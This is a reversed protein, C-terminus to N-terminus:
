KQVADLIIHCKDPTINDAGQVTNSSWAVDVSSTEDHEYLPSFVNYERYLYLHLPAYNAKLPMATFHRTSSLM